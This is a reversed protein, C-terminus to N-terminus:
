SSADALDRFDGRQEAANILAQFQSNASELLFAINSTTASPDTSATYNGNDSLKQPNITSLKTSWRKLM